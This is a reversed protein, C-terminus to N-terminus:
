IIEAFNFFFHILVIYFITMGRLAEKIFPKLFYYSLLQKKNGQKKM